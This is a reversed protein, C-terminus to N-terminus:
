GRNERIGLAKGDLTGGYRELWEFEAKQALYMARRSQFAAMEEGDSGNGPAFAEAWREFSDPINGFVPFELAQFYALFEEPPDKLGHSEM